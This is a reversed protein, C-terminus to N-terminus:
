EKIKKRRFAINYICFPSYLVILLLWCLAFDDIISYLAPSIILASSIGFIIITPLGGKNFLLCIYGIFAIILGLFFPSFIFLFFEHFDYFTFFNLVGWLVGISGLVYKLVKVAKEKKLLNLIACIGVIIEIFLAVCLCITIIIEAKQVGAEFGPSVPEINKPILWYILYPNILFTKIFPIIYYFLTKM